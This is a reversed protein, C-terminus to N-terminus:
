KHIGNECLLEGDIMVIQYCYYIIEYKKQDKKSMIKGADWPSDLYGHLKIRSYVTSICNGLNFKTIEVRRNLIYGEESLEIINGYNDTVIVKHDRFNKKVKRLDLAHILGMYPLSFCVNCDILSSLTRPCKWHRYQNIIRFKIINCTRKQLILCENGISKGTYRCNSDKEMIIDSLFPMDIIIEAIERPLDINLLDKIQLLLNNLNTKTIKQLQQAM